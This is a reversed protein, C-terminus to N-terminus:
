NLGETNQPDTVWQLSNICIDGSVVIKFQNGQVTM